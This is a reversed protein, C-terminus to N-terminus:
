RWGDYWCCGAHLRQSCVDNSGSQFPSSRACLDALWSDTRLFLSSSIMALSIKAVSVNNIDFGLHEGGIPKLIYDFMPKELFCAEVSQIHPFENFMKIRLRMHGSFAIGELLVPMGAGM